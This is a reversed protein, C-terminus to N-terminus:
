VNSHEDAYHLLCMYCDHEFVDCRLTSKTKNIRNPCLGFAEWEEALEEPTREGRSHIDEIQEQTLLTIPVNFIRRQEKVRKIREIWFTLIFGVPVFLLILLLVVLWGDFTM